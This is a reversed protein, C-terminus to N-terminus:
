TMSISLNLRRVKLKRATALTGSLAEFTNSTLDFLIGFKIHPRGGANPSGHTKLVSILQVFM